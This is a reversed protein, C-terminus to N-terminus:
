IELADHQHVYVIGAFFKGSQQYSAAIKLLDDDHSFLVRNLHTARDLLDPDELEDGGDEQATLVDIGTRRLGDTIAQSIHVDMYFCVAM